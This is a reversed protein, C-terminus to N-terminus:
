ALKLGIQALNLLAQILRLRFDVAQQFEAMHLQVLKENAEAGKPAATTTVDGDLQWATTLSQQEAGEGTVTRITVTLLDELLKKVDKDSAEMMGLVKRVEDSTGFREVLQEMLTKAKAM